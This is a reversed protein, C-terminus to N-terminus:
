QAARAVSGREVHFLRGAGPLGAVDARLSTVLLQAPLERVCELLRDYYSRITGAFRGIDIYRNVESRRAVNGLFRRSRPLSTM